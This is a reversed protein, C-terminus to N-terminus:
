RRWGRFGVILAGLLAASGLAVLPLGAVSWLAITVGAAAIVAAILAAFRAPPMPMDPQPTLGSM